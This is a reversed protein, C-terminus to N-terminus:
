QLLRHILRARFASSDEDRQSGDAELKGERATVKNWVQQMADLRLASFANNSSAQAAPEDDSGGVRPYAANWLMLQQLLIARKASDDKSFYRFATRAAEMIDGGLLDCEPKGASTLAGQVFPDLVFALLHM